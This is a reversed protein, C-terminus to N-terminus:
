SLNCQCDQPPFHLQAYKVVQVNRKQCTMCQKIHKNVSAKLGKWYYLKDFLMYARTTGNHDLEDHAARLIQTILVQPLVITHFCQKNEIINRMLLKDEIYYAKSAQLRSSKLLGMIRKCFLDYQQLQCLRQNTVNLKLDTGSDVSSVMIENLTINAKPLM